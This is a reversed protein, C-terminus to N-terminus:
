CSETNRGAWARLKPFILKTMARTQWRSSRSTESSGSRERRRRILKTTKQRKRSDVPPSSRRLSTGRERSRTWPEGSFLEANNLLRSRKTPRPLSRSSFTGFLSFPETCRSTRLRTPSITRTFRCRTSRSISCLRCSRSQLLVSGTLSSGRRLSRSSAPECGAPGTKTTASETWGGVQGLTWTAPAGDGKEVSDLIWKRWVLGVIGAGASADSERGSRIMRLAPLLLERKAKEAGETGEYGPLPSPFRELTSICVARAATYTSLLQRLLVQTTEPSALRITFPWPDEEPATAADGGTSKKGQSRSKAHFTPTQTAATKRYTSYGTTADRKNNEVGKTGDEGNDLRYSSDIRAQFALDLMRLSNMKLRYPRAPNLNKEVILEFWWELWSKVSDVYEQAEAAGEKGKNATRQAKWSSDRLRLLLKGTLGITQMRTDGEEDGLSYTYFTKLLAFSSSPFPLANSSSTVLLSLADIRLSPSLRTLSTELLSIPLALKTSSSPQSSAASSDVQVLGLSNGVRLFALAAELDEDGLRGVDEEEQGFLYGGEALLRELSEPRKACVPAVLYICLNGRGKAGSPLTCAELVPRIWFQASDDGRQQQRECCKDVWSVGVRGAVPAMDESALIGEVIRRAIGEEIDCDSRVSFDAFFELEHHPLLAEFSYLSRKNNWPDALIKARLQQSVEPMDLSAPSALALLLVLCIKLKAQVSLPHIDWATYLTTSLTVLLVTSLQSRVLDFEPSTRSAIILQARRLLHELAEFAVLTTPPVGSGKAASPLSSAPTSLIELM